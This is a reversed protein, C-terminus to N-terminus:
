HTFPVPTRRRENLFILGGPSYTTRMVERSGTTTIEVQYLCPVHDRIVEQEPPCRATGDRDRTGLFVLALGTKSAIERFDAEPPTKSWGPGYFPGWFGRSLDRKM